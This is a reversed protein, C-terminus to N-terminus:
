HHNTQEFCNIFFGVVMEAAVMETAFFPQKCIGAELFGSADIAAGNGIVM